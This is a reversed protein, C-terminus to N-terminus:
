GRDDLEEFKNGLKASAPLIQAMAAVLAAALIFKKMATNQIFIFILVIIPAAAYNRPLALRLNVTLRYYIEVIHALKADHYVIGM